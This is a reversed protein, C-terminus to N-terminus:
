KWGRLEKLKLVWQTYENYDDPMIMPLGHDACRVQLYDGKKFQVTSSGDYVIRGENRSETSMMIKLSATKPIVLPRSSLSMSAIPNIIMCEVDYHMIIGNALSLNYATSGTSSSILCGDSRIQIAFAGNIFTDLIVMAPSSREISIDNLVYHLLLDCEDPGCLRSELRPFSKIKFPKEKSVNEHFYRMVEKYDLISFNSLFCLTGGNFSIFPPMKERALAKHAWLITGDGGITIGYDIPVDKSLVGEFFVLNEHEIFDVVVPHNKVSTELYVLYEVEQNSLLFDLIYRYSELLPEDGFPRKSIYISVRDQKLRSSKRTSVSTGTDKRNPNPEDYLEGEEPVKAAEM